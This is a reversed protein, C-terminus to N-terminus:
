GYNMAPGGSDSATELKLCDCVDFGLASLRFKHIRRDKLLGSFSLDKAGPGSPIHWASLPGRGM